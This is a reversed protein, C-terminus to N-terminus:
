RWTAKIGSMFSSPSLGKLRNDIHVIDGSINEQYETPERVSYPWPWKLDGVSPLPAGALRQGHNQVPHPHSGGIPTFVRVNLLLM